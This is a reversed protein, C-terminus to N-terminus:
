LDFYVFATYLRKLIVLHLSINIFHPMDLYYHYHYYYHYCNHETSAPLNFTSYGIKHQKEKMNLAYKKMLLM